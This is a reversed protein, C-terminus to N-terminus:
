SNASRLTAARKILELGVVPNSAPPGGGRIRTQLLDVLRLASENVNLRLGTIPVEAFEAVPGDTVTAVMFEDPVRLRLELAATLSGKAFVSSSTIVADPADDSRLLNWAAEAGAAEGLDNDAVRIVPTQGWSRVATTYTALIARRYMNDTQGVIAAIRRAGGLRLHTLLTRISSVYNVGVWWRFENNAPDPDFSVAPMDHRVLSQVDPDSHRPYLVVVGDLRPARGLLDDLDTATVTTYGRGLCSIAVAGAMQAFSATGFVFGPIAEPPRVLVGVASRAGVHTYGLEAAARWVRERTAAAVPRRHSFCHSATTLSVGARQAVHTLTVRDRM